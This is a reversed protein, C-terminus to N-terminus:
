YPPPGIESFPTYNQGTIRIMVNMRVTEGARMASQAEAESIAIWEGNRWTQWRPLYSSRDADFPLDHTNQLNGDEDYYTVRRKVLSWPCDRWRTYSFHVGPEEVQIYTVRPLVDCMSCNVGVMPLWVTYGPAPEQASAPGALLIALVLVLVFPAPNKM